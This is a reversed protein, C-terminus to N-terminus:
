TIKLLCVFLNFFFFFFFPQFTGVELLLPVSSPSLNGCLVMPIIPSLVLVGM